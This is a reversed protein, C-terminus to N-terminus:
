SNGVGRNEARWAEQLWHMTSIPSYKIYEVRM